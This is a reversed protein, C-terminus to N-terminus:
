STSKWAALLIQRWGHLLFLVPFISMRSNKQNTRIPCFHDKSILIIHWIKSSYISLPYRCLPFVDFLDVNLISVVWAKYFVVNNSKRVLLIQFLLIATVLSDMFCLQLFYFYSLVWDLELTKLASNVKGEGYM